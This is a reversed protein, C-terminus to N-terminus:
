TEKHDDCDDNNNKDNNNINNVTKLKEIIWFRIMIIILIMIAAMTIIVISFSFTAIYTCIYLERRVWSLSEMILVLQAVAVCYDWYGNEKMISLKMHIRFCVAAQRQACTNMQTDMYKRKKMTIIGEKPNNM